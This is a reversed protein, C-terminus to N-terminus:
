CALALEPAHVADRVVEVLAEIADSRRDGDHETAASHGRTLAIPAPEFLHSLDIAVTLADAPDLWSTPVIAVGLGNAVLARAIEASGAMMSTNPEIEHAELQARLAAFPTRPGPVIPRMSSLEPVTMPLHHRPSPADRPLLLAFDVHGVVMAPEASEGHHVLLDVSGARSQPDTMTSRELLVRVFPRMRRFNSIIEATRRAGLLELGAVRVVGGTRGRAAGVATRATEYRALIEEVHRLLLRGADTLEVIPTGSARHLLRAGVANELYAIQGSIASQVYGLRDAARNFSRESAVAELALLHRVEISQWPVQRSAVGV